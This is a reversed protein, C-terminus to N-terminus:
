SLTPGGRITRASSGPQPLGKTLPEWDHGGTRSHYMRPKGKPPYHRTPIVYITDPEHTHVEIPYGFDTPLNGSVEHWSEGTDNSRMVDWHLQMFLVTPRTPHM